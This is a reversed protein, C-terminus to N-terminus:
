LHRIVRFVPSKNALLYEDVEMNLPSIVGFEETLWWAIQM